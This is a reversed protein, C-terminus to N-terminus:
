LIEFISRKHKFRKDSFLVESRSTKKKRSSKKKKKKGSKKSAAPKKKKGLRIPIEGEDIGFEYEDLVADENDQVPEQVPAAHKGAHKPKKESDQM